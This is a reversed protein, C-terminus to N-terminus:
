VAAARAKRSAAAKTRSAKAKAHVGQAWAKLNKRFRFLVAAFFAAVAAGWFKMFATWAKALMELLGDEVVRTAGITVQVEITSTAKPIPLGSCDNTDFLDVKAGVRYSGVKTPKLSYQLSTGGPDLRQCTAGKPDFDFSPAFPQVLATQGKGLAGHRETLGSEAAPMNKQLGIWIKLYGPEQHLAMKNTATVQV